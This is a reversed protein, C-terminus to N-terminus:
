GHKNCILSNGEMKCYNINYIFLISPAVDQLSGNFKNLKYESSVLIFPVKSLSHTKIKKNNKKMFDANGHDATIILNWNNKVCMNYIIKLQLDICEIAKITANFNGTHGVMDANPYNVLIFDYNNVLEILKNTIKNASMCPYIDYTSNKISPILIESKNSSKINKGCDFFYTVHAFKQSESIRLQSINNNILIENLTIDINPKNYIVGFSPTNTYECISYLNINFQIKKDINYKNTNLFKNILQTIRDTRYNMFLLNDNHAIKWEVNFGIPIIFEDDISKKYSEKIYELVNKTSIIKQMIADYAKNTLNSNNDRDMYYYRGGISAIHTSSKIKKTLKKVDKYFTYKDVDRGDSFLHLYVCVNKSEFFKIIADIVYKDSHIKGSSYMGFLHVKKDKIIKKIWELNALYDNFKNSKILDYFFQNINCITQGSGITMHGLESNGFQNKNVGVHKGSAFLKAYKYKKILMDYTPTKAAYIANTKKNKKGIGFGDLVVLIVKKNM